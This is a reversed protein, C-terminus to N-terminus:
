GISRSMIELLIAFKARLRRLTQLNKLKGSLILVRVMFLFKWPYYFMCKVNVFGKPTHLPEICRIGYGIKLYLFVAEVRLSFCYGNLHSNERERISIDM